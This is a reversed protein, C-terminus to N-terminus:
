NADGIQFACAYRTQWDLCNERIPELGWYELPWGQRLSTDGDHIERILETLPKWGMREAVRTRVDLDVGSVFLYGGPKVLRAIAVLCARATSPEMHCLFRNAVVVDQPGLRAVLESDAADASLWEIGNRLWPRIRAEDGDVLFMEEFEQSTMREFIPANQDRSTNWAVDNIRARQDEPPQREDLGKRSYIGKAAFQVIEPAIDIATVRFQLDPRVSRLAWVISYVEAGKSCALITIAIDSNPSRRDVIRRMLELEARNRLFFTGFYQKREAHSRVLANLQRGFFQGAQHGRVPAPLHKWMRTMQKLFIQQARRLIRSGQRAAVANPVEDRGSLLSNESAKGAAAHSVSVQEFQPM